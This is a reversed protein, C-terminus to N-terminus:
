GPHRGTEPLVARAAVLLGIGIPVNVFMVWRWSAWQTLIGGAVLGVASGGISVATYYGIARMRERGEAFMTTLLALASPAALAAGAGQVARAALLWGSSTALGGAFSAVTFLGIGALFTRRRGMLDGARAGLLLLGGFSLAYANIVWSLSTTSFGLATQIKPLAVNVITADLTVMLQCVLIVTLILQPRSGRASAAPLSAPSAQISMHPAGSTCNSAFRFTGGSCYPPNRRKALEKPGHPPATADASANASRGSRLSACRLRSRSSPTADLSNASCPTSYGRSSMARSAPTPM